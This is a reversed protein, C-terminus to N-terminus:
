LNNITNCLTALAEHDFDALLQEISDKSVKSAVSENTSIPHYQRWDCDSRSNIKTSTLKMDNNINSIGENITIKSMNLNPVNRNNITSDAYTNFSSHIEGNSQNMTQLSANEVQFENMHSRNNYLNSTTSLYEDDGYNPDFPTVSRISDGIVRDSDDESYTTFFECSRMNEDEIYEMSSPANSAGVFTDIGTVTVQNLHHQRSEWERLAIKYKFKECDAQKQYIIRDKNSLVNWKQSIEKALQGFGGSKNNHQSM